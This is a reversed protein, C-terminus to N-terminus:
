DVEGTERGWAQHPGVEWQRRVQLRAGKLGVVWFKLVPFKRFCLM